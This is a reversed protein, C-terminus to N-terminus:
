PMPWAVAIATASHPASTASTSLFTSPASAVASCIRASPRFTIRVGNGFQEFLDVGIKSADVEQSVDGAVSVECLWFLQEDVVQM